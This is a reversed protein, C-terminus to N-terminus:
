PLSRRACRTLGLLHAPLRHGGRHRGRQPFRQVVDSHRPHFRAAQGPPRAAGTRGLGARRGGQGDARAFLPVRRSAGGAPRLHREPAARRREPRGRGGQPLCLVAPIGGRGGRDAGSRARRSVALAAVELAPEEVAQEAVAAVEVAAESGAEAAPEEAHVHRAAATEPTVDLVMARATIEVTEKCDTMCPDRVFLPFETELRDDDQFNAENPMPVELFNERTLVFDDDVVDNLYLLYATIAYTEDASLSQAYGFPMARHVYDWVTSLYPWYSGITKNPDESTLTGRGGALVPWRGSGEGFDGHCSACNDIYLDEGDLVSGSGAPLGLGDPRVDIDWAAIEEPHAERGLAFSAPLVVDPSADPAPAALPPSPTPAAAQAEAASPTMVGRAPAPIDTVFQDALFYATGLVAAAGTLSPILPHELFKSM